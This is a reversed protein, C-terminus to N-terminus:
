LEALLIKWHKKRQKKKGAWTLEYKEESVEQYEGFEEKLAEFDIIGDKIISPFLQVLKKINDEKNDNIKESIKQNM